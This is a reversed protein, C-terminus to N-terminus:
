CNMWVASGIPAPKNQLQEAWENNPLAKSNRIIWRATLDRYIDPNDGHMPPVNMIIEVIQDGIQAGLQSIPHSAVSTWSVTRQVKIGCDNIRALVTGGDVTRIHDLANSVNQWDAHQTQASAPLFLALVGVLLGISSKTMLHKM